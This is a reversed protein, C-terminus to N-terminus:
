RVDEATVNALQPVGSPSLVLNHVRASVGFARPLYLVPVVIHSQLFASEARYLSAPDSIDDHLGSGFDALTERLASQADAAEVHLLRLSLEANPNTAQSVVHVTWGAERLNLALREAILQLAANSSDVGLRVAVSQGGRLARARGVDMTTDFLFSYGSLANPLLSATIEGQKRFIVNFLSTRDLALAISQRLHPDTILQDSMTLALLDTPRATIILPIREQQALSLKEAPVEVLDAKGVSFDLWQEDITRNGYIQIENLFPRGQWSDDNASLFVIGNSNAVFRFPGTGNPNGDAGQRTIAYMSRTLEAPLGPM